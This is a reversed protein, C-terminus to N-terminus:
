FPSRVRKGACAAVDPLKSKKHFRGSTFYVKLTFPLDRPLGNAVVYTSLGFAMGKKM